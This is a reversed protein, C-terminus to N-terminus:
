TGIYVARKESDYFEVNQNLVPISSHSYVMYLPVM